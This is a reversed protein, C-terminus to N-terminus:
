QPNSQELIEPRVNISVFSFIQRFTRRTTEESNPIEGNLVRSAFSLMTDFIQHLLIDVDTEPKFAYNVKKIMPKYFELHQQYSHDRCNASYYYRLYFLCDDPKDLIFEWCSKWLLFCKEEFPFNPQRMVPWVKQIHKAFNVDELYFVEALLEDKSKFCRYIYAENMGAATAILKTTTKALGHQAVIHVACSIFIERLEEKSKPREM